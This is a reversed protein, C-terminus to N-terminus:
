ITRKEVEIIEEYKSYELYLMEFEKATQKIWNLLYSMTYKSKPLPSYLSMLDVAWHVAPNPQIVRHIYIPFNSFHMIVM